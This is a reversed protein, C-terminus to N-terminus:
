NLEEKAPLELESPPPTYLDSLEEENGYKQALVSLETFFEISDMTRFYIRMITLLMKLDPDEAKVGAALSYTDGDEVVLLNNIKKSNLLISLDRIKETPTKM